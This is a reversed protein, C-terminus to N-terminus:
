QHYLSRHPLFPFSPLIRSFRVEELEWHERQLGYYKESLDRQEKSSQVSASTPSIADGVVEGPEQKVDSAQESKVGTQAVLFSDKKPLYAQLCRLRSGILTLLEGCGFKHIKIDSKQLHEVM